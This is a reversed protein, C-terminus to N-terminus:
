RMVKEGKMTYLQTSLRARREQQLPCSQCVHTFDFALCRKSCVKRSTANIIIKTDLRQSKYRFLIQKVSVPHHLM